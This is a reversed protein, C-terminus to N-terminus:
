DNIRILYIKFLVAESKQNNKVSHPVNGDFFFTDGKHLTVIEDKLGYSVSGDLVYILEHGDTALPERYVNGKIRVINARLNFDAIDQHILSEYILGVSDEREEIEGTNKRIIIYDKDKDEGNGDVNEVLDSMNVELARSINLLVSLSPVARFNEIKSLLGATVESIEAVQQLSMNRKKRETKIRKGIESLKDDKM